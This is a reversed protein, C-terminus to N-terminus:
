TSLAPGGAASAPTGVRVGHLEGYPMCVLSSRNIAVVEAAIPGTPAHVHVADGIAADLGSIELHIGLVRTVQGSVLPRAAAAAAGLRGGTLSEVLASANM